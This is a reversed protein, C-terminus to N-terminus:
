ADAARDRECRRLLEVLEDPPVPKTLYARFGAALARQRDWSLPRGTVAVLLPPRPLGLEGLRAALEFGDGGPMLVDIVAVDPPEALAARVAGGCDLAHTARFGHLALLAATSEATDPHDDVVLVRLPRHM